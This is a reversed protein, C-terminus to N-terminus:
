ILGAAAALIVIWVTPMLVVALWYAQQEVVERESVHVWYKKGGAFRERKYYEGNIRKM